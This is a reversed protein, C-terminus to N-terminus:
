RAGIPGAARGDSAVPFVPVPRDPADHEELGRLLLGRRAPSLSALLVDQVLRYRFGFRPGDVRLIRRESLRELEEVLESVDAHLLAALQEPAFPQALV